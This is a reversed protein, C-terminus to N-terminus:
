TAVSYRVLVLIDSFDEAFTEGGSKVELTWTADEDATAVDVSVTVRAAALRGVPQAPQLVLAGNGGPATVEVDPFEAQAAAGISDGQGAAPVAFLDLRSVSLTTDASAFLYPFHRKAWVFTQARGSAPMGSTWRSWEGPFERRLSFLRSLGDPRGESVMTNLADGLANVAKAKLRSGGDRATYRLHLIVDSMTDYDFPRFVAPLELRWRSAAAGLGEFPLYRDDRLNTEFMGADNQAQSTVISQVNGFYDVFRTDEAAPDGREYDPDPSPDRRVTSRLLTLQCPVGAYPGTVCPISLSVYKIRRMYHGPHELDFLAEPIEFECTGTERLRVLAMPDLGSLSVHRTIEFERRNRDIWDAELRRLDFQLMEAALLGRKLSDWYGFAIFSRDGSGMEFNSSREARRAMSYALRYSQFYVQAVQGAMWDFLATRSFKERMFADAEKANTIQLDHNALENLAIAHRVDAAAIQADIQKLERTALDAQHSWEEARRDYNGLTGAMSAGSNLLSAATGLSRSTGELGGAINSGGYTVGLTTPAGAKFEPILHMIASFIELELQVALPLLALNALRMQTQEHENTYPRSSFFEQRAVVAERNAKLGEQAQFAEEVQQQRIARVAGLLAVEHGSRLAALQEVDRKELAAQLTAGLAKAEGCLEHAKQLMAAFRYQPLPASLDNLVSSLDVGAAAAQVLLRPDIPPDWVPLRRVTGGINMCHRLKFLRDAVKDWLAQMTENRPLCFLPMTGLSGLGTTVMGGTPSTSPPVFSEIDVLAGLIDTRGHRALSDYTQVEPRARTPVDEPRPGLLRAAMVYLLTAEDLAEITDRQFLQDGWALLNNVYGIVVAKMFAPTRLRAIAFPQFPHASWEDMQEQLAESESRMLEEFSQPARSAEDRFPKFNWFRERGGQRSTTPDFIYHYWRRADEFRQNASLRTAILWPLHFFLEWNYQSFSGGRSFDVTEHPTRPVVTGGTDLDLYVTASRPKYADMFTRGADTRGQLTPDLLAEVGGRELAEIFACALPHHLAQFRLKRGGWHGGEATVIDVLYGRDLDQYSFPLTLSAPNFGEPRLMVRYVDPTAQLMVTGSGFPDFPYARYENEVTAMAEFHAQGEPIPKLQLPNIAPAVLAAPVPWADHSCDDLVFEGLAHHRSNPPEPPEANDSSMGGGPVPASGHVKPSLVVDIV